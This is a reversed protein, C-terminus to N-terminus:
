DVIIIVKCQRLILTNKLSKGLSIDEQRIIIKRKNHVSKAKIICPNSGALSLDKANSLSKEWVVLGNIAFKKDAIQPGYIIKNEFDIITPALCAKFGIKRADVILSTYNKKNSEIPKTNKEISEAILENMKKEKSFEATYGEKTKTVKIFKKLKEKNLFNKLVKKKVIQEASPDTKIIASM